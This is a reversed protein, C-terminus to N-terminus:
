AEAPVPQRKELDVQLLKNDNPVAVVWTGDQRRALAATRPAPVRGKGSAKWPLRDPDEAGLQLRVPYGREPNGGPVIGLALFTPRVADPEWCGTVPFLARGRVTDGVERCQLRWAYRPAGSAKLEAAPGPDAAPARKPVRIFTDGHRNPDERSTSRIHYDCDEGRAPAHFFVQGKGDHSLPLDGPDVRNRWVM